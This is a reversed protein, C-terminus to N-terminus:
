VKRWIHFLGIILLPFGFGMMAGLLKNKSLGVGLISCVVALSICLGIQIPKKMYDDWPYGIGKPHSLIDNQNKGGKIQILM